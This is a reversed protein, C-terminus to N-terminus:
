SSTVGPREQDRRDAQEMLRDHGEGGAGDRVAGAPETADEHEALPRAAARWDAKRRWILYTVGGLPIQLFYTLFRFVLVAAVAPADQAGAFTLGGIYGLEALGVNGPIIPMASALRVFAFVALTQAFTVAHNPIGVFRVSALLVAFVSLQSAVEAAALRLGRERLLGVMQRRFEAAKENWGHVPARRIIARLRTAVREAFSGVWRAIRENRFVLVLMASCVIFAGVGILATALLGDNSDGELVLLGLVVVPLVLKFGMNAFFTAMASRAVQTGTFGWSTYMTYSVGVALAGGAPVTMAVSTSSQCVVAAQGLTLGPMAAVLMPWYTVVNLVTLLVLVADARWSLGRIVRWVDEFNAIRPLVGFFVAVVIAPFLLIRLVRVANALKGRPRRPPSPDATSTADM